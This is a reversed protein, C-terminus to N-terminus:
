RDDAFRPERSGDDVALAAALTRRGVAATPPDDASHGLFALALALAWGRARDWLDATVDHAATRRYAARFTGHAGAPLLMWAAALDTAPDGGTLDGFDIV